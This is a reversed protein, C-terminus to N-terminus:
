RPTARPQLAEAVFTKIERVFWDADQAMCFHGAEPSLAARARPLGGALAACEQRSSALDNAGGLVLVPCAVAGLDLFPTNLLLRLFEYWGYVGVRDRVKDAITMERDPAVQHGTSACMGERLLDLFSHVRHALEAWRVVGAAPKYVPSVLVAARPLVAGPRALWELLANSAFSHAVLVDPPGPLMAVAAEIWEEPRAARGWLTGQSGEWPLTLFATRFQGGLHEQLRLWLDAGMGLGHIFTMLSLSPREGDGAPRTLTLKYGHATASETRWATTGRRL